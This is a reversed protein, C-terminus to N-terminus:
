VNENLYKLLYNIDAISTAGPITRESLDFESNYFTSSGMGGEDDEWQYVRCNDFYLVNTITNIYVKTENEICDFFIDGIKLDKFTKM